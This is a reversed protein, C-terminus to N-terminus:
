PKKIHVTGQPDTHQIKDLGVVKETVVLWVLLYDQIPHHPQGGPKHVLSTQRSQVPASPPGSLPHLLHATLVGM